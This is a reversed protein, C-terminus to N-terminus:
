HMHGVSSHCKVCSLSDQGGQDTLPASDIAEVVEQHCDRCAQETIRRNRETIQIPERFGGVTFAMSHHYGNLGKTIWKGAFDRPTHCDNCTAVAAHSSKLWGNYQDNMIHCNACSQPDDVLYSTGEAYFFTFGGVGGAVGLTVGLLIGATTLVKWRM